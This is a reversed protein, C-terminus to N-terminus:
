HSRLFMLKLQRHQPCLAKHTIVTIIAIKYFTFLRGTTFLLCIAQQLFLLVGGVILFFTM